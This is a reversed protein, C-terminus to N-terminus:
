DKQKRAEADIAAAMSLFLDYPIHRMDDPHWIRVGFSEWM